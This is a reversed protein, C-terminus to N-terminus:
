VCTLKVMYTNKKVASNDTAEIRISKHEHDRLPHFIDNLVNEALFEYQAIQLDHMYESKLTIHMTNRERTGLVKSCVWPGISNFAVDDKLCVTDFIDRYMTTQLVQVDAMFHTTPLSVPRILTTYRSANSLVCKYFYLVQNGYLGITEIMDWLEDTPPPNVPYDRSPPWHSAYTAYDILM